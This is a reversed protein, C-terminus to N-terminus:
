IIGRKRLNYTSCIPEYINPWNVPCIKSKEIAKLISKVTNNIPFPKDDIIVKAEEFVISHGDIFIENGATLEVSHNVLSSKLCKHLNSVDM